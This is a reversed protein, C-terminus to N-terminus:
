RQESRLGFTIIVNWNLGDIIAIGVRPAEKSELEWKVSCAKRRVAHEEGTYKGESLWSSHHQTSGHMHAGGGGGGGGGWVRM